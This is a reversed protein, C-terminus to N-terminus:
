LRLILSLGSSVGDSHSGPARGGPLTGSAHGLDKQAGEQIGSGEM